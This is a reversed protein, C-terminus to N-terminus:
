QQSTDYHKTKNYQKSSSSAAVATASLQQQQQGYSPADLHCQNIQTV